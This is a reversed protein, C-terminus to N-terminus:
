RRLLKGPTSCNPRGKFKTVGVGHIIGAQWALYERFRTMDTDTDDRTHRHINSDRNIM